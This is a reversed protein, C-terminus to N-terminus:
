EASARTSRSPRQREIQKAVDAFAAKVAQRAIVSTPEVDAGRKAPPAVFGNVVGSVPSADPMAQKEQELSKGKAISSLFPTQDGAIMLRFEVEAEMRDKGKLAIIEGYVSGDCASESSGAAAASAKFGANSLQSVLDGDVGNMDLPKGSKNQIKNVCVKAGQALRRAGLAGQVQENAPPYPTRSVYYIGAAVIAGTLVLLIKKM